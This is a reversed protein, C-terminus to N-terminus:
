SGQLKGEECLTRSTMKRGRFIRYRVYGEATETRLTAVVAQLAELSAGTRLTEWQQHHFWHKTAQLTYGRRPAGPPTDRDQVVSRALARRASAWCPAEWGGLMDAWALLRRIAEQLASLHRHATALQQELDYVYGSAPYCLAQCDAAPCQGSPMVGGPDVRSLIAQIPALNGEQWVQGCNDCRIDNHM